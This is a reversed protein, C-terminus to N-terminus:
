FDDGLLEEGFRPLTYGGGIDVNWYDNPMQGLHFTEGNKMREEVEEMNKPQQYAANKVKVGAKAVALTGVQSKSSLHDTEAPNISQELKRTADREIKRVKERTLGMIRGTAELTHETEGFIGFRYALVDKEIQTLITDLSAVQTLILEASVKEIAAIEPQLSTDKCAIFDGIESGEGHDIHNNLSVPQKSKHRLERIEDVSVEMFVALEDETPHRQLESRLYADTSRLQECRETIHVPLRVDRNQNAYARVIAQKIWWTGYTSFKFGMTHDFKEVARILGFTGEQILDLYPMGNHRYGKAISVVLRLNAEVMKNKASEDGAQLRKFLEVEQAATLLPIKSIDELYATLCNIEANDDDGLTEAHFDEVQASNEPEFTDATSETESYLDDFRSPFNIVNDPVITEEAELDFVGAERLHRKQVPTEPLTLGGTVPEMVAEFDILRDLERM